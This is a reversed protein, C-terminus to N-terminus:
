LGNPNMTPLPDYRPHFTNPTRLGGCLYLFPPRDCVFCLIPCVADPPNEPLGTVVVRDHNQVYSLTNRDGCLRIECVRCGLGALTVQCGPWRRLFWYLNNGRATLPGHHTWDGRYNSTTEFSSNTQQANFTFSDTNYICEGHCSLWDGVRELVSASQEPVSGDCKLGINLLLNGCGAAVMALMEVIQSPTKWEYDGKHFGWSNNLTVCAEWPRWPVPPTLHQEPTAFDGRLGNRGNFLIHPQISSAM